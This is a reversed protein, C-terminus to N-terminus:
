PQAACLARYEAVYGEWRPVPCWDRHAGRLGCRNCIKKDDSFVSYYGQLAYDLAAALKDAMEAKARLTRVQTTTLLCEDDPAYAPAPEAHVLNDFPTWEIFREGPFRVHCGGGTVMEVIGAMGDVSPKRRVRDGVKFETEAM